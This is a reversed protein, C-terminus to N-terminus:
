STSFPLSYSNFITPMLNGEEDEDPGRREIASLHRLRGLAEQGFHCKSLCLDHSRSQPCYTSCRGETSLRVRNEIFSRSNEGIKSVVVVSRDCIRCNSSKVLKISVSRRTATPMYVSGRVLDVNYLMIRLRYERSHSDHCRSCWSLPFIHAEIAHM